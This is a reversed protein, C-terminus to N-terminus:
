MMRKITKTKQTRYGGKQVEHLRIDPCTISGRFSLRKEGGRQGNDWAPLHQNCSERDQKMLYGESLQINM